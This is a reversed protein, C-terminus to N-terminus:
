FYKALVQPFMPSMIDLFYASSFLLFSITVKQFRSQKANPKRVRWSSDKRAFFRSQFKTGFAYFGMLFACLLASFEFNERPLGGLGWLSLPDGERATPVRHDGGGSWKKISPSPGAKNCAFLLLVAGKILAKTIRAM